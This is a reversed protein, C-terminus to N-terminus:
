TGLVVIIVAAVVTLLSYAALCVALIRPKKGQLTFLFYILSIAAMFVWGRAIAVNYYTLGYSYGGTFFEIWVLVCLVSNIVALIWDAKTM